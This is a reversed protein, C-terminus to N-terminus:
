FGVIFARLHRDQASGSSTAASLRRWKAEVNYTGAPLDFALLSGLRLGASPVSGSLTSGAAGNTISLGQVEGAINQGAPSGGVSSLAELVAMTGNAAGQTQGNIDIAVGVHNGSASLLATWRAYYSVVIMGDTPLVLGTIKDPTPMSGLTDVPLAQSTATVIKGRGVQSGSNLGLRQQLGTTLNLEDLQGNIGTQIATLATLTKPDETANPQGIVPLTLSILAM